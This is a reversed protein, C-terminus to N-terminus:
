ARRKIPTGFLGSPRVLLMLLLLSFVVPDRYGSALLGAAFSEVLGVILGGIVVGIPNDLGGVVAGAFGKIGIFPAIAGGALTFPAIMMGALAALGSALAVSYGKMQNPNIGVLQAAHANTSAAQIAKGYVTRNFFLYFLALTIGLLAFSWFSQVLIKAGLFDVVENERGSFVPFAKAERGWIVGEGHFLLYSVGISAIITAVEGIKYTPRFVLREYLLGIAGGVLLTGLMAAWLPLQLGTLLTLAVLGGLVVQDGQAFNIARTARLIVHYGLAVLAYVSGMTLGAVGLQLYDSFSM